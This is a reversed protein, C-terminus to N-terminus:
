HKPALGLTRKARQTNKNNLQRKARQLRKLEKPDKEKSREYTALQKALEILLANIEENLAKQQAQKYNTKSKRKKATKHSKIQYEFLNKHALTNVSENNILKLRHLYKKKTLDISIIKGEQIFHKPFIVHLHNHINKGRHIVAYFFHTILGNKQEQSYKLDNEKVVYEIFEKANRRYIEELLENDLEFPYSFMVSWGYGSPRGGGNLKREINFQSARKAIHQTNMKPTLPLLTQGKHQNKDTLYNVFAVFGADAKKISEATMTWNKLAM